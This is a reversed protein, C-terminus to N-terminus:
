AVCLMEDTERTVDRRIVLADARKERREERDREYREETEGADEAKLSDGTDRQERREEEDSGETEEEAANEKEDGRFRGRIGCHTCIGATALFPDKREKREARFRSPREM